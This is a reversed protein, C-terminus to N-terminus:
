AVPCGCTSHQYQQWNARSFDADSIPLIWTEHLDSSENVSIWTDQFSHTASLKYRGESDLDFAQHSGPNLRCFEEFLFSLKKFNEEYDGMIYEKIAEQARCMMRQNCAMGSTQQVQSM